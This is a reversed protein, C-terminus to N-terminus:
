QSICELCIQLRFLPDLLCALNRPIWGGIFLSLDDFNLQEHWLYASPITNIEHIFSTRKNNFWWNYHSLKPIVESNVMLERVQPSNRWSLIANADALTVPRFSTGSELLHM